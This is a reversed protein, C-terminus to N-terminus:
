LPMKTEMIEKKSLTTCVVSNLADAIMAACREVLFKIDKPAVIVSKKVNKSMNKLDALLPVGMSICPVHVTEFSIERNQGLAGGPTMGISSLQFSHGLRKINETLLSDILIILKADIKEVIGSVIDFTSIGTVAQVNPCICCVDHKKTTTSVLRTALINKCVFNGLSDSIIDDNGLGVILICDGKKIKHLKLFQRLITKIEGVVKEQYIQHLFLNHCSVIRYKGKKFYENEKDIDLYSLVIEDKIQEHFGLKSYDFDLEDFIKM